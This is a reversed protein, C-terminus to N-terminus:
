CRGWYTNDDRLSRGPGFFGPISGWGRGRMPPRRAEDGTPGYGCVGGGAQEEAGEKAEGEEEGPVLCALAGALM